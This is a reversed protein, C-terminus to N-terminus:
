QDSYREFNEDMVEYAIGAKRFMEATEHDGHYRIQAVVRKIGCNIIMKACNACPTMKCYLTSGEIPIGHKCAQSIANMEAHLTRLCHKTVKGDEHTVTKMQHGLDDCHPLGVPSGVYGTTLIRKEKVIVVATKGRDCTGREAVATMIGMFYEDWSPRQHYRKNLDSLLKDIKEYLEELTRDNKLVIKAKSVVKHLQQKNPDSSQELKEKKMLEQFTRPDEERNRLHLWGFRRKADAAVRVLVFDKEEQLSRLEEPNRISSVVHNKEPSLRLKIRIRDALISPGYRSRLSNGLEILNDRTLKINKRKAEERIEDSLSHNAFGKKQLYAAVSDKGSAYM